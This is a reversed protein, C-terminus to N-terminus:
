QKQFLGVAEPFCLRVTEQSSRDTSFSRNNKPVSIDLIYELTHEMYGTYAEGAIEVYMM